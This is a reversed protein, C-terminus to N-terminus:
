HKCKLFVVSMKKQMLPRQITPDLMQQSYRQTSKLSAIEANKGIGSQKLNYMALFKETWVM